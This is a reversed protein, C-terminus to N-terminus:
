APTPRVVQNRENADLLSARTKLSSFEPDLPRYLIMQQFPIPLLFKRFTKNNVIVAEILVFIQKQSQIRAPQRSDYKFGAVMHNSDVAACIFLLLVIRSPKVGPRDEPHNIFPNTTLEPVGWLFKGSFRGWQKGFRRVAFRFSHERRIQQKSIISREEQFDGWSCFLASIRSECFMLAQPLDNNSKPLQARLDLFM